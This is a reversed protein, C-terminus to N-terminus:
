FYLLSINYSSFALPEFFIKRFYEWVIAQEFIKLKIIILYVLFKKFICRPIFYNILFLIKGYFLIETKITSLYM